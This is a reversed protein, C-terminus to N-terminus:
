DEFLIYRKHWLVFGGVNSGLRKSGTEGPYDMDLKRYPKRVSDVQVKAYGRPIPLDNLLAGEVCQDVQGMAVTITINMTPVVLKCVKSKTINDM